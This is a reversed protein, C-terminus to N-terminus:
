RFLRWAAEIAIWVIPTMGVLFAVPDASQAIVSVAILAVVGTAIIPALPLGASAGAANNAANFQTEYQLSAM